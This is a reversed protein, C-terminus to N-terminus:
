GLLLREAGQEILQNVVDGVLGVAGARSAQAMARVVPPQGDRRGVAARLWVTEGEMTALAAIPSHCDGNLAAVVGREMEVCRATDPDDLAGLLKRTPEDDRRCQIALAGQGAAPLMQDAGIPTTDAEDLLGSRRLGAMALIVADFQGDRLKRLRTDVNGRILEIALDPRLDLLQARRRLSGTGVRAGRPLDAISRARRCALADRPDERVPVAAILLNAQEVLPMTVPVDKFSHVALDIRGDLLAQELERTFLGKGGLEHLPRDAIQDGSTKIITLEVRLGWHAAELSKAVLGSQM